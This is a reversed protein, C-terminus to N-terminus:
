KLGEHADGTVLEVGPLGRAVLGRLFQHWFAGDESPGVDLGLVEREGSARVGVAIVVAVSVVRGDRRVEVCTADLWGCPCPGGLGMLAQALARVGERLVDADGELEAKRLLESLAMRLEDAM